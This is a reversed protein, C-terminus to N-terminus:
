RAAGGLRELIWPGGFIRSLVGGIRSVTRTDATEVERYDYKWTSGGRANTRISIPQGFWGNIEDSTTQHTVIRPIKDTPFSRGSSACGAGATCLAFVLLIPVFPDRRADSRTSSEGSKM